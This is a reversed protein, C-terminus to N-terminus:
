YQKLFLWIVHIHYRGGTKQHVPSHQQKHTHLHLIYPVHHGCLKTSFWQQGPVSFEQLHKVTGWTWPSLPFIDFPHTPWMIRTSSYRWVTSPFLAIVSLPICIKCQLTASYRHNHKYGFTKETWLSEYIFLLM